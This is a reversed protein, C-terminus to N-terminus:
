APSIEYGESSNTIRTPNGIGDYTITSGDYYTLPNGIADYTIPQNDVATLLDKWQADTYSLPIGKFSTINGANDYSYTETVVDNVSVQVLQNLDDYVYRTVTDTHTQPSPGAVYSRRTEKTINGNGDYEFFFASSLVSDNIWNRKNHVQTTTSNTTKGDVYEYGEWMGDGTKGPPKPRM